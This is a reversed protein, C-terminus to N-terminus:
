KYLNIKELIQNKNLVGINEWSKKGNKYIVFMPLGNIEYFDSVLPNEDTDMKLVECYDKTELEIESIEPKLKVCPVCWNAHFYVLVVKSKNSIKKQFDEVSMGKNQIYTTKNSANLDGDVSMFYYFVFVVSLFALLTTIKKPLFVNKM